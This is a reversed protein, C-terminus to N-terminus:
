LKKVMKAVFAFSNYNCVLDNENAYENFKSDIFESILDYTKNIIEIYKM